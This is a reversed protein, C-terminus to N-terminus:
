VRSFLEPVILLDNNSSARNVGQIALINTGAVLQGKVESIDWEVYQTAATEDREAKAWCGRDTLATPNVGNLAVTEVDFYAQIIDIM